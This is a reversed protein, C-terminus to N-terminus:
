SNIAKKKRINGKKMHGNSEDSIMELLQRRQLPRQIINLFGLERARAELREDNGDSIGFLKLSGDKELLQQVLHEWEGNTDDAANFRLALLMMDPQYEQVLHIAKDRDEAIECNHHLRLALYAQMQSKLADDAIVIKM